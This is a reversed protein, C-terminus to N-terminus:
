RMRRDRRSAMWLVTITCIDIETDEVSENLAEKGLGNELNALRYWKEAIRGVFGADDPNDFLKSMTGAFKYNAFPDEDSSYDHSKKSHIESMKELLNYFIPSGHKQTM